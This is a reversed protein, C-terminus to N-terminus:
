NQRKKQVLSRKGLKAEEKPSFFQYNKHCKAAGDNGGDTETVSPSELLTTHVAKNAAQM